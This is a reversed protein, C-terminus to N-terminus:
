VRYAKCLAASTFFQDLKRPLRPGLLKRGLRRIMPAVLLSSAIMSQPQDLGIHTYPSLPPAPVLTVAGPAM